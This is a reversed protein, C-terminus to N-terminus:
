VCVCIIYIYTHTDIWMDIHIPVHQTYLSSQSGSCRELARRTGRYLSRPKVVAGLSAMYALGSLCLLM